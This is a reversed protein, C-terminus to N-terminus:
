LDVLCTNVSNVSCGTISDSLNCVGHKSDVQGYYWNGQNCRHLRSLASAIKIHLGPLCGKAEDVPQTQNILFQISYLM